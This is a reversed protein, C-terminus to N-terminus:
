TTEKIVLWTVLEFDRASRPAESARALKFGAASSRGLGTAQHRHHAQRIQAICDGCSPRM